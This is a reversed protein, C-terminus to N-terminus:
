IKSSMFNIIAEARKTITLSKATNLAGKSLRNRLEYNDRLRTIAESIEDINNPDVMISNDKNLVDWNFPLNSSVVPLGCAMAEVVANCCGEHQTPLVFIDAANLYHPIDDHSLPGCHLINKCNPMQEGKGIFISHIDNAKEIAKSLRLVGKREIFWGVFAVIFTNLPLSLLKRCETRDYLKFLKSDVANPLVICKDETTLGLEISEKKNKSSVCIVGKVYNKLINKDFRTQFLNSIVSEGTAVFLPINKRKAFPLVAYATGWFHCYCVDPNIKNNLFFFFLCLRKLLNNFDYFRTPFSIYLPQYIKIEKGNKYERRVFPRFKKKHLLSSTISQPSLVIVNSDLNVFTECLLKVFPYDQEENYPYNPTVVLISSIKKM